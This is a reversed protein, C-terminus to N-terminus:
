HGVHRKELFSRYSKVMDDREMDLTTVTRLDTTCVADRMAAMKTDPVIPQTDTNAYSLVPGPTSLLYFVNQLSVYTDATCDVRNMLVAMDASLNAIPKPHPWYIEAWFTVVDGSRKVTATDLVWQSSTDTSVVYVVSAQAVAPLSLALACLLSRM